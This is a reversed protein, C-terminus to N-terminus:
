QTWQDLKKVDDDLRLLEWRQLALPMNGNRWVYDHFERLTFKRGQQLRREALMREIQLKGIEYAIGLGPATAFSAAEGDATGRDMPVTRALYDAAQAITFQGLALKVDVEVRLARLRAFNYIIERSRPSDDYLGADLMMEEAYFGIGENASSDYYQRRIPDPNRWALSLQFFHGPVGEHVGTTRPDQAYAKWFYPLDNSPPQIWRTGDQHLRSPGTFDDLEGFGDLAAIYAPALRITWHPLDPPVTLIQHEMLYRRIRADDQAMRATEEDATAAIKLEPARLDRQHEYAETALIREFDQRAMALLQDPTYPLLAVQHLFFGYAKAGLTFDRRMGPLKQKLWERYDILAKSANSIATSFRARRDAGTLLPSVGREVRTLRADIGSLMEITLQAFPAMANLNLKGQELIAPINETRAVIERSRADSFPAPPMLEEQLAGVTQEVYFAPDRQWRPNVDLEWRVRALASGMLRYDVMQGVPWGNTRLAKWRREFEALDARQKAISAASWDRVGTAHEMRPVDDFTFPRYQARWTWFDSPLRDLSDAQAQAFSIASWLLLGALAHRM